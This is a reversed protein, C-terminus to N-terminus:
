GARRRRACRRAIRGPPEPVFEIGREAFASVLAASTDPSPPVPTGFPIVITIECADRLGRESLYDHLM